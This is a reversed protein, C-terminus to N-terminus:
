NGNIQNQRQEQDATSKNVHRPSSMVYKIEFRVLFPNQPWAAVTTNRNVPLDDWEKWNLQLVNQTSTNYKFKKRWHPQVIQQNTATV